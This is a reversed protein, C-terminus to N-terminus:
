SSRSASIASRRAQAAPAPGPSPSSIDVGVGRDALDVALVLLAGGVAVGVLRAVVRQQGGAGVGALDEVGALPGPLGVGGAPRGAEDVLGDATDAARARGARDDEPGVRPEPSGLRDRPPAGV